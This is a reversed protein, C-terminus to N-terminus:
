NYMLVIIQQNNEMKEGGTMKVIYQYQYKSMNMM